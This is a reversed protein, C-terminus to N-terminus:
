RTRSPGLGPLIDLTSVFLRRVGLTGWISQYLIVFNVTHRFFLDTMLHFSDIGLLLVFSLITGLTYEERVTYNSRVVVFNIGKIFTM